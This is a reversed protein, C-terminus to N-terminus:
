KRKGTKVTSSSKEEAMCIDPKGLLEEYKQKLEDYDSRSKDLLRTLDHISQILIDLTNQDHTLLGKLFQNEKEFDQIDM